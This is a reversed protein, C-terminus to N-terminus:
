GEDPTPEPEVEDDIPEPSELEPEPPELEPDPPESGEPETPESEVPASVEATEDGEVIGTVAQVREDQDVQVLRVGQTNRGMVRIDHARMRILKGGTSILMVHDEDQTLLVGVVPGNRETTKITIIGRGGRGQVRYEQVTTRKGYGNATVTLITSQDIPGPSAEVGELTEGGVPESALGGEARASGEIVAMGVVVDGQDLRIGRVGVSPRGMPRVDAIPFRISVGNQTSILLDDQARVLQAGVLRDGEAIGVGIIGRPRPRSYESLATRRVTGARTATVVFHDDSFHRVPLLASVKEDAELQILNVLPKGRATRNGLPLAHVKVWYVKGRDTFALLYAHTSAVFMKEVFDESKTGAGMVGKGGRRQARYEGPATRKVYGEHSVTVVMEEEAILDEDTYEGLEGEIKTRRPNGFSEGVEELEDIIVKLLLKEDSLIARLGAMEVELERARGALKERELGTLRNLRLDLIAQAQEVSLEFYGLEVAKTIQEDKSDILARINGLRPFREAVLSARAEATDNAARILEIVRDINDIAALLGIQLHFEREAKTLEFLTRRTVVERRHELFAELVNALSCIRPQGQDIALMNIGFSQEMATHSYLQKLTVQANTDRKLEIVVRLGDRDSEDRVDSIGEVVKERVLEAIHVILKAKNVQYPLETVVIQEGGRARPEIEAVARIKLQGRGTAYARKIGDRGHIVGGTPFDPGPVIRLLEDLTISPNRAFAVTAEIVEKLNHPPISTAMGVAIGQSGNVLLNPFKAPLVLPETLSEDFNPGFAVTDKDLDTLLEGALRTLRAETYRMAAPPDGDVSGFNGQGDILPERMSFDQAMRVLAEYVASDGHPHYKGIVDGVTRASKKFPKNFASGLENMAHLIRRHVPKLGDRVDPLARGVIVSMAYDLYSTRMEDEIAVPRREERPPDPPSPPDGPPPAAADPESM